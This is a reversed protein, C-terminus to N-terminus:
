FQFCSLWLEEIKLIPQKFLHYSSNAEFQGVPEAEDVVFGGNSLDISSGPVVINLVGCDDLAKETDRTVWFIVMQSVVLM